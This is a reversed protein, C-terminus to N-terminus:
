DIYEDDDDDNSIRSATAPGRVRDGGDQRHRRSLM